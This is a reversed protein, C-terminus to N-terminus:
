AIRKLYGKPNYTILFRECASDVVFRPQAANSDLALFRDVAEMPGPGYEAFTPHGNINTDEVVLYDGVQVLPSYALFGIGLWVKDTVPTSLWWQGLMAVINHLHDM